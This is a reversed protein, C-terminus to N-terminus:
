AISSEWRRWNKTLRRLMLRIFVHIMGEHNAPLREYDRALIRANELWTWTREVVWRKPEVQFGETEEAHQSIELEM